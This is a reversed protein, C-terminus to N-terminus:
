GPPPSKADQLTMGPPPIRGGHGSEQWWWTPKQGFHAAARDMADAIDQLARWDDNRSPYRCILDHIRHRTQMLRGFQRQPDQM